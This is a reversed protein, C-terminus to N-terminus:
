PPLLLVRTKSIRTSCVHPQICGEEKEIPKVFHRTGGVGRGRVKRGFSSVGARDAASRFVAADLQVTM